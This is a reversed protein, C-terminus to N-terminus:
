PRSTMHAHERRAIKRGDDAWRSPAKRGRRGQEGARRGREGQRLIAAQKHGMGNLSERGEEKKISSRGRRWKTQIESWFAFDTAIKEKPISFPRSLSEHRSPERFCSSKDGGSGRLSFPKKQMLLPPPRVQTLTRRGRRVLTTATIYRLRSFSLSLSLCGKM